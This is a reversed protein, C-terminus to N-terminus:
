VCSPAPKLASAAFCNEAESSARNAASFLSQLWEIIFWSISSTSISILLTYARSSTLSRDQTHFARCQSPEDDEVIVALYGGLALEGLESAETSELVGVEIRGENVLLKVPRAARQLRAESHTADPANWFVTLTLTNSSATFDVDVHSADPLDQSLTSCADLRPRAKDCVKRTLSLGLRDNIHSFQFFQYSTAGIRSALSFSENM